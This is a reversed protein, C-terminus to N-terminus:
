TGSAGCPRRATSRRPTSCSKTSRRAPRRAPRSWSRSGVTVNVAIVIIEKGLHTASAHPGGIGGAATPRLVWRPRQLPLALRARHHVGTGGLYSLLMRYPTDCQLSQDADLTLALGITFHFFIIFAGSARFKFVNWFNATTSRRATGRGRVLVGVPPGRGPRDYRDADTFTFAIGRALPYFIM